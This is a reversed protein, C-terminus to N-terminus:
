DPKAGSSRVVKGWKETEEAVFKGLDVSSGPFAFTGLDALREKIKSDVLAVNIEKNLTDVIATATNKHLGAGFWQSAEYGPVFESVTPIDPLGEFRTSTTVALARLRGARIHEITAPLSGLYIQIQGGLLDSIAPAAGRYPVHAMEIKAMTKLMEGALHTPNGSGASAMNIKTPNAKAYAIFEPLTKAPVSPHVLVVLPGRIMGIVAIDRIFNFNLKDYLTANIAAAADFGLLTYGDAPARVVAETAINGAAGARNEIVIPQGLKETLPQAVLRVFIDTGGGAPYGVIWRVPRSPYTQAWAFRPAVSLAAASAALHLFNRRPPKMLKSWADATDTAPIDLHSIFHLRMGIANDSGM